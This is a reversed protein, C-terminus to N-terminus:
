KWPIDSPFLRDVLQRLEVSSDELKDFLTTKHTREDWQVTFINSHRAQVTLELRAYRLASHAWSSGFSAEYRVTQQCTRLSQEDDYEIRNVSFGKDMLARRIELFVEARVDPNDVLCLNLPKAEFVYDSEKEFLSCGTLATALSAALAVSVWRKKM